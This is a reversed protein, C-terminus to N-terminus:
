LLLTLWNGTKPVRFSGTLGSEFKLRVIFLKEILKGNKLVCYFFDTLVNGSKLRVIYLRIKLYRCYM